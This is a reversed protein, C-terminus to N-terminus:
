YNRSNILIEKRLRNMLRERVNKRTRHRQKSTAKPDISNDWKESSGDMIEKYLPHFRAARRRYQKRFNKKESDTICTIPYQYKSYVKVIESWIMYKTSGVNNRIPLIHQEIIEKGRVCYFEQTFKPNYKSVIFEMQDKTEFPHDIYRFEGKETLFVLYYQVLSLNKTKGSKKVLTGM